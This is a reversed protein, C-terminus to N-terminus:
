RDRAAHLVAAVIIARPRASIEFVIIYRSRPVVREWTGRARGPRALPPFDALLGIVHRIKEVERHGAAPNERGIWAAIDALDRWAREDVIVRM